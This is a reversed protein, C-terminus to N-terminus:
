RMEHLLLVCSLPALYLEFDPGSRSHEPFDEVRVHAEPSKSHAQATDGQVHRIPARM